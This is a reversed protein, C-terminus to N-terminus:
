EDEDDEEQERKYVYEHKRNMRRKGWWRNFKGFGFAVGFSFLFLIIYEWTSM